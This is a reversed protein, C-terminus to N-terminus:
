LTASMGYIVKINNKGPTLCDPFAQVVGHDTVAIAEHGWQAARKILEAPPIVADMQSMQTHAHLEVRKEESNDKRVEVSVQLIDSAMIVLEKSFRDYQAEGRVRVNIGPKLREAFKM